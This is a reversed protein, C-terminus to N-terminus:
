EKNEDSALNVETYTKPYSETIDVDGAHMQLRSPSGQHDFASLNVVDDPGGEFVDKLETPNRVITPAQAIHSSVMAERDRSITRPQYVSTAVTHDMAAAILPNRPRSLLQENMLRAMTQNRSEAHLMRPTSILPAHATDGFMLPDFDREMGGIAVPKCMSLRYREVGPKKVYNPVMPYQVPFPTQKIEMEIPFPTKTVRFCLEDGDFDKNREALVDKFYQGVMQTKGMQRTMTALHIDSMLEIDNWIRPTTLGRGVAQRMALTNNESSGIAHEHLIGRKRGFYESAEIDEKLINDLKYPKTNNDLYDNSLDTPTPYNGLMTAYRRSFQGERQVVEVMGDHEVINLQGHKFTDPWGVYIVPNTVSKPTDLRDSHKRMLVSALTRREPFTIILADTTPEGNIFDEFSTVRFDPYLSRIAELPLDTYHPKNELPLTGVIEFHRSVIRESTAETPLYVDWLENLTGLFGLVKISLTIYWDNYGLVVKRDGTDEITIGRAKIREWYMDRAKPAKFIEIFIKVIIESQRIADFVSDNDLLADMCQYIATIVANSTRDHGYNALELLLGELCAHETPDFDHREIVENATLVHEKIVPHDPWLDRFEKRTGYSVGTVYDELEAAFREPMHKEVWQLGEKRSEIQHVRGASWSVDLAWFCYQMEVPFEDEGLVYRVTTDAIARAYRSMNTVIQKTFTIEGDKAHKEGLAIWKDLTANGDDCVSDRLENCAKNFDELKFTTQFTM